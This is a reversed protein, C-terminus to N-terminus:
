SLGRNSMILPPILKSIKDPSLLLIFKKTDPDWKLKFQEEISTFLNEQITSPTLREVPAIIDPLILSKLVQNLIKYTPASSDSSGTLSDYLFSSSTEEPNTSVFVVQIVPDSQLKRILNSVQPDATALLIYAESIYEKVIEVVEKAPKLPDTVGETPVLIDDGRYTRFRVQKKRISEAILSDHFVQIEDGAASHLINRSAVGMGSKRFLEAFALQLISKGRMVINTPNLPNRTDSKVIQYM